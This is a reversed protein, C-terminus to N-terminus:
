ERERILDIVSNFKGLKEALIKMNNHLNKLNIYMIGDLNNHGNKDKPYRFTFSEKDINAFDHIIKSICDTDEKTIYEQIGKDIKNIIKKMLGNSVCWLNWIKHHEPFGCGESLIIRSEKIINKLNLEIYQRYLFVIPYVLIDQDSSTEIVKHTLEEAAKLYGNIYLRITDHTWNLCANSGCDEGFSFLSNNM